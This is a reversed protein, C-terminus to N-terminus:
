TTRLSIGNNARGIIHSRFHKAAFSVRVRDVVPREAADEKFEESSKWRKRSFSWFLGPCIELIPFINEASRVVVQRLIKYEVQSIYGPVTDSPLEELGQSNSIVDLVAGSRM